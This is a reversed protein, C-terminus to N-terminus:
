VCVTVYRTFTNSKKIKCKDIIRLGTNQIIDTMDDMTIIVSKDSIEKLKKILAIQEEITIKGM